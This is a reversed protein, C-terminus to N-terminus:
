REAIEEFRSQIETYRKMLELGFDTLRAGGGGESGGKFTELPKKGTQVEIRKMLGWCYRYSMALAKAGRTISGEEQISKLIAYAGPGFVYEGEIELWLKWNPKLEASEGHSGDM